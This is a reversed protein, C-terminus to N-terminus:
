CTSKWTTPVSSWNAARSTAAYCPGSGPWCNRSPLPSSWTTMPAPTWVSSKIKSPTAPRSSSSQGRSVTPGCIECFESVTVDRSADPGPYRCRLTRHNRRLLGARRDGATVVEYGKEELGRQLSNLLKKQDEVVLLRPM